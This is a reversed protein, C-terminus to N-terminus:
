GGAYGATSVDHGTLLERVGIPLMEDLRIKVHRGDPDAAERRRNSSPASRGGWPTRRVPVPRIPLMEAGARPRDGGPRHRRASRVTRGDGDGEAHRRLDREGSPCPDVPQRRAGAHVDRATDPCRRSPPAPRRRAHRDPSRAFGRVVPQTLRGVAQDDDSRVAAFSDGQACGRAGSETPEFTPISRLRQGAGRDSVVRYPSGNPSWLAM